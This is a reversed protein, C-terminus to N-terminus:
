GRLPLFDNLFAFTLVRASMYTVHFWQWECLFPRFFVAGVPNCSQAFFKYKIPSGADGSGCVFASTLKTRIM